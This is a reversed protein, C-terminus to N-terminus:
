QQITKCNSNKCKPLRMQKKEQGGTTSFYLRKCFKKMDGEGKEAYCATHYNILTLIAKVRGEGAKVGGESL